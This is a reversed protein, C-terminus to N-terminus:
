PQDGTQDPAEDRAQRALATVTETIEALSSGPHFVRSVGATTLDREDGEPVIGGVIVKIHILGAEKLARMLKPVLLHDTALCSVGLVDIDEDM